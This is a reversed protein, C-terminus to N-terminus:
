KWKIESFIGNKGNNELTFFSIIYITKNPYSHGSLM